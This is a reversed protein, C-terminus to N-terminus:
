RAYEFYDVDDKVDKMSRFSVGVPPTSATLSAIHASGPQQHTEFASVVWILQDIQSQAKSDDRARYRSAAMLRAENAEKERWKRKLENVEAAAKERAGDAGGDEEEDDLRLAELREIEKDKSSLTANLGHMAIEDAQVQSELAAVIKRLESVAAAAQLLAM